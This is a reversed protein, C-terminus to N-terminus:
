FPRLPLLRKIRGFIKEVKKLIYKTPITLVEDSRRSRGPCAKTEGAFVSTLKRWRQSLLLTEFLNFITLSLENAFM